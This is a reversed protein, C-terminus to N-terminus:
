CIDFPHHDVTAFTNPHHPSVYNAQARRDYYNQVFKTTDKSKTKMNNVKRGNSSWEASATDVIKDLAPFSLPACTVPFEAEGHTEGSAIRLGKMKDKMEDTRSQKERAVDASENEESPLLKDGYKVMASAGLDVTKTGVETQESTGEKYTVILAFLGRPIFIEKNAQDLFRNTRLREQIEQGVGAAIQVAQVALGIIIDPYLAAMGTAIMIVDFIPSAQAARHFDKLFGLFTEQDIGANQLVPAYARVFGRSKTGPRRQPLIIPYNLPKSTTKSLINGNKSCPPPMSSRLEEKSETELDDKPIASDEEEAAAEDLAWDVENHDIGIDHTSDAPVLEHTLAEGDAPVAQSTAILEEAQDEPVRVYVPPESKGQEPPSTAEKDERPGASTTISLPLETSQKSSPSVDQQSRSRQKRDKQNHIAERVLGIPAAILKVTQGVLVLPITPHAFANRNYGYKPDYGSEYDGM